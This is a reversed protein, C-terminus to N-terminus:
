LHSMSSSALLATARCPPEVNPLAADGFVGSFLCGGYVTSAHRKCKVGSSPPTGSHETREDDLGSDLVDNFVLATRAQAAALARTPRVSRTVIENRDRLPRTVTENRRSCAARAPAAANAARPRTPRPNSWRTGDRPGILTSPTVTSSTVTCPERADCSFLAHRQGKALRSTVDSTAFTVCTVCTVFTVYAVSM